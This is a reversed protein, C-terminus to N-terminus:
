EGGREPDGPPIKRHSYGYRTKPYRRVSIAILPAIGDQGSQQRGPQWVTEGTRGWIKEKTTVREKETTM